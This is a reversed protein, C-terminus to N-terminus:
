KKNKLPVQKSNLLTQATLDGNDAAMRVFSIVDNLDDNKGLTLKLERAYLCGLSKQVEDTVSSHLSKRLSGKLFSKLQNSDETMWGPLRNQAMLCRIFVEENPGKRIEQVKNFIQYATLDNQFCRGGAVRGKYYMIGLIFHADPHGKEAVKSLLNFAEADAEEKTKGAVRGYYYMKALQCMADFDGQEVKKSLVNFDDQAPPTIETQPANTNSVVEKQNSVNLSNEDLHQIEIGEKNGANDKVFCTLSLAAIVEEDRKEKKVVIHEDVPEEKEVRKKINNNKKEKSDETVNKKGKGAQAIEPTGLLALLVFFSTFSNAILLSKKM